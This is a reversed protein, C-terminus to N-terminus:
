KVLTSFSIISRTIIATRLTREAYDESMYDELEERFRSAPATHTPREDLRAGRDHVDPCLLAVAELRSLGILDAEM